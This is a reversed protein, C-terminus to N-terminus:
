STEEDTFHPVIHLDSLEKSGTFPPYIFDAKPVYGEERLDLLLIRMFFYIQASEPHSTDAAIFMHTSNNIEIWSCGPLKQVKREKMLSRVKSVREWRGGVAHINSLLVYYGSNQPDLKFLHQSALEALDVNGHVRCAGLLAGWIGPDPQFPMSQIFELAEVLRGARGFLDVMCAYHEMRPKIGFDDGMRHFYQFGQEVKGAHSCASIMNLFTIHDPQFGSGIMEEFLGMAEKLYGHSGYAAILSNWSVENKVEMMDFVRCAFVLNGCKGYMDILASEAFLDAKLSGRMMYGHIERGFHLAPLNGCASLASSVTVCDFEMGEIGMKHFLNIAEGPQGNQAFSAIISNWAVVDKESMKGFICHALDLRGCKAYMDILASGVYCRGDLGNKLTYCHLEKGLCLTVLTSCAPLVSAVTIANPKMKERILWRFIELADGSMGNLVYGSIMASCIVIDITGTGDFVKCAMCVNRCKFYMDILANKLFADLNVDNKVIYAHIEKGQNLGYSNSFLPLISALTISDPRVGALQMKYFSGIAQEGLGNQVYGSIMVNWAVLEPQPMMHFLKSMDFWCRCKSYMALLTNAVSSEFDLGYRITLGHMQAGYRAKAESACISLVCAFSVYNPRVESRRMANFLYFAEESDGQKAYGDIMVNWLVCDKDTIHDFVRRAEGILNNETYMKILSSGVFPDVELWMSSITVHILSGLQIARLGCCAKIVYPFTYRDPTVGCFFMKFYLLLACEFCGAMAFGRIMWNWPLAVGKDMRFFLDKADHFGGCLVYMGLVRADLLGLHGLGNVVVQSHVQRGGNLGRPESCNRLVSSLRAVVLGEAPPWDLGVQEQALSTLKRRCCFATAVSALRRCTSSVGSQCM